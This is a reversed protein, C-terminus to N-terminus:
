FTPVASKVLFNNSTRAVSCAATHTKERINYQDGVKDMTTRSFPNKLINAIQFTSFTALGIVLAFITSYEKYHHILNFSIVVLVFIFIFWLMNRIMRSMPIGLNGVSGPIGELEKLDEKMDKGSDPSVNARICLRELEECWVEFYKNWEEGDKKMIRAILAQPAVGNGLGDVALKTFDVEDDERLEAKLVYPFMVGLYALNEPVDSLGGTIKSQPNETQEIANVNVCTSIRTYLRKLSGHSANMLAVAAKGGGLWGFIQEYIVYAVFVSVMSLMFYENIPLWGDWGLGIILGCSIGHVVLFALLLWGGAVIFNYKWWQFSEHQKPQQFPFNHESWKVSECIKQSILSDMEGCSAGIPQSSYATLQVAYSNGNDAYM